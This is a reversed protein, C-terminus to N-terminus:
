REGPTKLQKVNPSYGTRNSTKLMQLTDTKLQQNIKSLHKLNHEQAKHQHSTLHPNQNINPTQANPHKVNPTYQIYYYMYMYM